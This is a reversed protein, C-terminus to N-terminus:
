LPFIVFGGKSKAYESATDKADNWRKVYNSCDRCWTGRSKVKDLNQTFPQHEPNSCKWLMPSKANIFETSLLMGGKSKAVEKAEILFKEKNQKQINLKHCDVCWSDKSLMQDPTTFWSSHEKNSCKFEMKTKASLYEKSLLTGGKAEAHSKIKQYLEEKTAM